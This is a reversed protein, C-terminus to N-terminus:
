LRQVYVAVGQIRAPWGTVVDKCTGLHQCSVKRCLFRALPRLVSRMLSMAIGARSICRKLISYGQVRQM